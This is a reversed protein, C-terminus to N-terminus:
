SIHVYLYQSYMHLLIKPICGTGLLWRAVMYDRPLKSLVTKYGPTQTVM